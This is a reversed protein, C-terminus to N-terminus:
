SGLGWARLGGSIGLVTLFIAGAARAQERLDQQSPRLPTLAMSTEM